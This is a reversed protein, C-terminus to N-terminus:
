KNQIPRGDAGLIKKSPVIIEKQSDDKPTEPKKVSDSCQAEKKALKADVQAQLKKKEDNLRNYKKESYLKTFYDQAKLPRFIELITFWIFRKRSYLIEDWTERYIALDLIANAFLRFNFGIANDIEKSHKKLIRYIEAERM